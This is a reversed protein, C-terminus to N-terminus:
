GAAVYQEFRRSGMDQRSQQQCDPNDSQAGPPSQEDRLEAQAGNEACHAQQGEDMKGEMDVANCPYQRQGCQRDRQENIFGPNLSHEAGDRGGTVHSTATYLVKELKTMTDEKRNNGM